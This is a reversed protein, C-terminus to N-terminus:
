RTGVGPGRQRSPEAAAAMERTRADADGGAPADAARLEPAAGRHLGFELAHMATLRHAVDNEAQARLLGMAGLAALVGYQIAVEVRTRGDELPLFDYTVRWGLAHFRRGSLPDLAAFTIELWRGPKTATVFGSYEKGPRLRRAADRLQENSLVAQVAQQCLEAPVAIVVHSAVRAM